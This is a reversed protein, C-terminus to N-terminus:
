PHTAKYLLSDLERAIERDWADHAYNTVVSYGTDYLAVYAGFPDDLRGRVGTWSGAHWATIGLNTRRFLIGAGYSRGRGIDAARLAFGSPRAANNQGSFHFEAFKLYDRASIEWGGWATMVRWDVNLSATTIGAPDLVERQCYTEYGEGTLEEIVLGLVLYNANSYRYSAWAPTGSLPEAVIKSFQWLKNEESLTRLKVLEVRHYDTDIGSAHTILQGITIDAFQDDRPPHAALAAPIAESLPTDVTKGFVTAANLACVATIAKSLSAVKAPDDVSREIGNEAIVSGNHAVIIAGAPVDHKAMWAQWDAIVRDAVSQPDNAAAPIAVLSLLCVFFIRLYMDSAGKRQWFGLAGVRNFDLEYALGM